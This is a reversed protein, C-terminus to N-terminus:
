VDVPRQIFKQWLTISFDFAPIANSINANKKMLENIRKNRIRLGRCVHSVPAESVSYQNWFV